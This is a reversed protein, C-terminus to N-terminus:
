KNWIGYATNNLIRKYQIPEWVSNIAAWFIMTIIVGYIGIWTGMIIAVPIHLLAEISTIYFQLKIKGTGNMLTRFLTYRMWLTMYILMLLLLLYNPQIEGRLWIKYSLPSIILLGCGVIVLIIWIRNMQEFVRKIWNLDNRFYADTCASWLPSLLTMFIMFIVYIYKYAVNFVSVDVPGCTRSIILNNTAFLILATIQIFFFQIGLSFISSICKKSFLSLKPIIMKYRTMFFYFFSIILPLLQSTSIVIGLLLISPNTTKSLIYVIILSIINGILLTLAPISPYQDAILLVNVINVVFRICFFSGIFLVLYRLEFNLEKSANLIVVWDIYLALILFILFLGISIFLLVFFSTSIYKQLNEFDGVAKAEAYKNRLGHGLGIDFLNFWEIIGVLTIWVGYNFVGIYSM